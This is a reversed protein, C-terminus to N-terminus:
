YVFYNGGTNGFIVTSPAIYLDTAPTTVDVSIGYGWNGLITSGAISVKANIASIRVGDLGNQFSSVSNLLTKGTTSLNIGNQSNGQLTIKSFTIQFAGSSASIGNYGNWSSTIGSLTLAGNTVLLVGSTGSVLGNSTFRNTGSIVIPSTSTGYYNDVYIGNSENNSANVNVLSITRQSSATLGRTGNADFTSKQITIGQPLGGTSQNALVAGDLGNGSATVNNLSIAGVSYVVIGERSNFNAETNSILVPRPTSAADNDILIGIRGNSSSIVRNLVISGTARIWLGPSSSGGSNGTIEANVITVNSAPGNASIDLGSYANGNAQISSISVNRNTAIALGINTYNENFRNLGLAGSVVVSGNATPFQNSLYSTFGNNIATIGAVTINGKSEVMLGSSGFNNNLVAGMITVPAPLLADSNDIYLGAGSSSNLSSLNTVKVSGSAYMELGTLYNLYFSSNQVVVNRAGVVSFSPGTSILVGNKGNYASNINKLLINSTTALIAGSNENGFLSVNDLTVAAVTSPTIWLGNGYYADNPVATNSSFTSNRVIASAGLASITTGNGYNRNATVGSLLVNGATYVTLGNYNTTDAPGGNLIFESNTVTIGGQNIYKELFSDYYTNTLSAGYGKSGNASVGNLIIPGQNYVEIGSGGTNKVDVDTLRITGKNSFFQLSPGASNATMSIGQLTFGNNFSYIYTQGDLRPKAGPTTKDWMIGKLTSGGPMAGDIALFANHVYGGELYIFGYGKKPGWDALATALSNVGLYTAKGGACNTCYFWPDPDGLGALAKQSALPTFAGSEEIIVAGSEALAEVAGATDPAPEPAPELIPEPAPAEPIDGEAHVIGPTFAAFVLTIFLLLLTLGYRHQQPKM